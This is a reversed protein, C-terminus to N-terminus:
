MRELAFFTQAEVIADALGTRIVEVGEPFATLLRSPTRGDLMVFLGRDGARRILRGYAQKLRLRTLMDDYASGGFADRRRKHLIDPRPWPVRDFVILRLAEGPVDIGDRVADTGLLCADREARFIDVLTGTDLPDVHQAYISHGADEIDEAIHQYVARLRAIATFIGLAGGGSAIFLERYAAAVQDTDNRNVDNVILVKTGAVYDFPSELSVREPPLVMHRVGTRMEARTWDEVDDPASDRITASTILVGQAPEFAAEALPITPDLWHRHFGVDFERGGARSVSFWDVFEEPTEAGLALLMQRWMRVMGEARTTLGRMAAEIRGRDATDLSDAEEDLRTKLILALRLMPRELDHMLLALERASALLGASPEVVDTELSYPGDQGHSRNQVHVRVEKLFAEVHGSPAGSSIRNLWGEGPLIQAAALTADLAQAGEESGGILDGIRRGLGRMPDRATSGGRRRGAGSIWTHLERGEQGTLHASFTSDAADFLHHGEDFVIHGVMDRDNDGHEARILSLAHNSIVIDAHRARHYVGEIFCKRYHPCASFICEGRRDRLDRTLGQGLLPELWSPFDGGVMDGDRSALAWRAMLGLPIADAPSVTIRRTADELNLLCLYNERGKRVVAKEAKTKADPYLRDLEQDIQRQLNKTYTSIWVTGGNQEAWLSAPAIYGLTKGTGTGAEALVLNPMGEDTRPGFAKTVADTYLIQTPRPEANKGVLVALRERAAAVSVSKSDPPLVPGGTEWEPLFDWIGLAKSPADAAGSMGLASLLVPAWPWGGQGMVAVIAATRQRNEDSAIERALMEVAQHLCVAEDILDVPERLGLAVALGRPTPLAFEAPRVFAYLEMVDFVDRSTLGPTVNTGRRGGRQVRREVGARYCVIPRESQLFLLGAELTMENVEGDPTVAVAGGAHVSFAARDPLVIEATTDSGTASMAETYTDASNM